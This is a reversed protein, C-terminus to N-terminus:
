WFAASDFIPVMARSVHRVNLSYTTQLYVAILECIELPLSRFCDTTNKRTAALIAAVKNRAEPMARPFQMLQELTPM